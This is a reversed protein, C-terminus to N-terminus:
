GQHDSGKINCFYNTILFCNTGFNNPFEGLLWEEVTLIVEVWLVAKLEGLFGGGGNLKTAWHKPRHGPLVAVNFTLLLRPRPSAVPRVFGFKARGRFLTERVKARLQLKKIKRTNAM